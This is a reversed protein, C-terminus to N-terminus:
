CAVGREADAGELDCVSKLIEDVGYALPGSLGLFIPRTVVPCDKKRRGILM